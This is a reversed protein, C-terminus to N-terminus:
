FNLGFFAHLYSVLQDKEFIGLEGTKDNMLGFKEGDVDWLIFPEFVILSKDQPVERGEM